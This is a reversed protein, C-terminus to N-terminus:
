LEVVAIAESTPAESGGAPETTIGIADYDDLARPPEFIMIGRGETDVHFLGVSIRNDGRILWVQYTQDSALLPLGETALLAMNEGPKWFVRVSGQQANLVVQQADASTLYAIIEEQQQIQTSYADQIQRLQAALLIWFANSILLLVVLAAAAAIWRRNRPVPLPRPVSVNVRTAPAATDATLAMLKDHLAAPPITPQSTYLLAQSLAIYEELESVVDPCLPLWAEVQQTEAPDTAGVSYAPLLAQLTECDPQSSQQPLDSM